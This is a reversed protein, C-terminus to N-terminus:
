PGTTRAQRLYADLAAQQDSLVAVRAALRDRFGRVEQLFEPCPADGTAGPGGTVHPLVERVLRV